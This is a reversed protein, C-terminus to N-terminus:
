SPVVSICFIMMALCMRPLSWLAAKRRTERAPLAYRKVAASVMAATLDHYLTAIQTMSMAGSPRFWTILHEVMGILRRAIDIMGASKHSCERYIEAAAHVIRRRVAEDRAGGPERNRM